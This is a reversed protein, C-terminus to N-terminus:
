NDQHKNSTQLGNAFIVALAEHMHLLTILLPQRIGLWVQAGSDAM